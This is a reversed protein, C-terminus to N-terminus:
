FLSKCTKVSQLPNERGVLCQCIDFKVSSIYCSESLSCSTPAPGPCDHQISTSTYRQAQSLKGGCTFLKRVAETSIQVNARLFDALHGCGQVVIGM